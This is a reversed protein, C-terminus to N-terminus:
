DGYFVSTIVYLNLIVGVIMGTSEFIELIHIVIPSINYMRLIILCLCIVDICFFPIASMPVGWRAIENRMTFRRLHFICGVALFVADIYENLFYGSIFAFSILSLIYVILLNRQFNNQLLKEKIKQFM